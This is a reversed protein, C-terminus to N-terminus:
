GSLDGELMKGVRVSGRDREVRVEVLNPSENQGAVLALKAGHDHLVSPQGV